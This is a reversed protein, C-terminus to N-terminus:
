VLDSRSSSLCSQEVPIEVLLLDSWVPDSPIHHVCSFICYLSKMMTLDILSLSTISCDKVQCHGSLGIVIEALHLISHICLGSRIHVKKGGLSCLTLKQLQLIVQDQHLTNASALEPIIALPFCPSCKLNKKKFRNPSLIQIEWSDGDLSHQQGSQEM